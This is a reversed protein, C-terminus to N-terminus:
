ENELGELIKLKLKSLEEKIPDSITSWEEIGHMEVEGNLSIFQQTEKNFRAMFTWDGSEEDVATGRVLIVKNDEPLRDKVSIWEM